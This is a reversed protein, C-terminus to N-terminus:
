KEETNAVAKEETVEPQSEVKKAEEKILPVFSKKEGVKKIMILNNVPGPVLGKIFLQQGEIDIVELNRVTVREHGMNGAMRKGKYVRGPTTGSGISGPARHRDSQGHTKPGGHFGYRKVGGAFGKGKSTGTVDIVDGPKLVTVLEIVDGAKPMEQGGDIRVERFFRPAIQLNAGKIQGLIAKSSKKRMGIGLQVAAYGHQDLNKVAVVPNGTVEITTVPIRTGDILFKESQEIKKGFITDMNLFWLFFPGRAM